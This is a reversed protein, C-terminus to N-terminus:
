PKPPAPTTSSPQQTGPQPATGRSIDQGQYTIRSKAGYRKYNEYKVIYRMKVDDGGGFHLTDEAYTYTPFWYKGDVQQRWTTYHPSLNEKEPHKPNHVQPVTEGYVKVIQLDQNDVWIRGQFYRQGKEMVKPAVDFVYTELEDERQKGVYLVQYKGIDESTLVFPLRHRIDDYDAETMQVRTLSSQPAFVVQEIRKGSDDFLVNTVERYQGDVTDGELTQITVDQTYTYDERADKFQEEKAAFEKIIQDVTFRKPQSPDLPGEGREDAMAPIVLCLALLSLFWRSKWSALRLCKM